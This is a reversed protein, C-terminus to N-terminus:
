HTFINQNVQDSMPHSVTPGDSLSAIFKSQNTTAVSKNQELLTELAELDSRGVAAGADGELKIASVVGKM